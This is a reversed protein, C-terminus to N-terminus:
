REALILVTSLAVRAEPRALVPALAMAVLAPCLPRRASSKLHFEVVLRAGAAAM